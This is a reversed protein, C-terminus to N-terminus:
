DRRAHDTEIKTEEILDFMRQQFNALEMRQAPSGVQRYKLTMTLLHELGKRLDKAALLLGAHVDPEDTQVVFKKAKAM